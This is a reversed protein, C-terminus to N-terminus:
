EEGKKMWEKIRNHRSESYFSQTPYWPDLDQTAKLLNITPLCPVINHISNTGNKSVPIVHDTHYKEGLPVGSYACEYNFFELCSKFDSATIKESSEALTARYKASYSANKEPHLKRYDRAYERERKRIEPHRKRWERMYEAHSIPEENKPNRSNKHQAYYNKMYDKNKERQADNYIKKCSRCMRNLGDKNRRDRTFETIPKIEKCHSCRKTEM